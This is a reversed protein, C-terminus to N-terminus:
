SMTNPARVLQGRQVKLKLRAWLHGRDREAGDPVSGPLPPRLEGSDWWAPLACPEWRLCLAVPVDAPLPLGGPDAAARLPRLHAPPRVGPIDKFQNQHNRDDCLGPVASLHTLTSYTVSSKWRLSVFVQVWRTSSWQVSSTLGRLFCSTYTAWYILIWPLVAPLCFLFWELSDSILFLSWIRIILTLLQREQLPLSLPLVSSSCTDPQKHEDCVAPKNSIFQAEAPSCVLLLPRRRFCLKGASKQRDLVECVCERGTLDAEIYEFTILGHKLKYEVTKIM